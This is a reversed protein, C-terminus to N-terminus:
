SFLSDFFNWSTNPIMSRFWGVNRNFADITFVGLVIVSEICLIVALRIVWKRLRASEAKLYEVSRNYREEMAKITAAHSDKIDQIHRENENILMKLQDEYNDITIQRYDKLQQIQDKHQEEMRMTYADHIEDTRQDQEARDTRLFSLVDASISENLPHNEEKIIKTKQSLVDAQRDDVGRNVSPEARNVSDDAFDAAHPQCIADFDARFDIEEGELMERVFDCISHGTAVCIKFVRELSIEKNQGRLVNSLMDDTMGIHRALQRQSFGSEEIYRKLIQGAKTMDFSFACLNKKM